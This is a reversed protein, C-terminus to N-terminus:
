ATTRTAREAREARLARRRGSWSLYEEPVPDYGHSGWPACRAIRRIAMWWGRRFGHRQLAVMAYESCTPQYRCSSFLGFFPSLAARYVRIVGVSIRSM